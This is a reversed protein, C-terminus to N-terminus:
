YLWDFILFLVVINNGVVKLFDYIYGINDSLNTLFNINNRLFSLEKSIFDTESFSVHPQSPKGQTKFIASTM